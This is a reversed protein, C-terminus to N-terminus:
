DKYVTGGIRLFNFGKSGSLAYRAPREYGICERLQEATDQLEELADLRTEIGELADAIKDLKSAIVIGIILSNEIGDKEFCQKFDVSVDKEILSSLAKSYEERADMKEGKLPLTTDIPVISEIFKKRSM